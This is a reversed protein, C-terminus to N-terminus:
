GNKNLKRTLNKGIFKPNEIYDILNVLYQCNLKKRELGQAKEKEQRVGNDLVELIIICM